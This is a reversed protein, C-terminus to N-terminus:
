RHTHQIIQTKGTMAKKLDDKSDLRQKEYLRAQRLPDVHHPVKQVTPAQRAQSQSYGRKGKHIADVQSLLNGTAANLRDIRSSDFDHLLIAQHFRKLVAELDVGFDVLRKGNQLDGNIRLLLEIASGCGELESIAEVYQALLDQAKQILSLQYAEAKAYEALRHRISAESLEQNTHEVAELLKEKVNNLESLECEIDFIKQRQVRLSPPKRQKLLNKEVIKTNSKKLDAILAQKDVIQAEVQAMMQRINEIEANLKAVSKMKCGKM